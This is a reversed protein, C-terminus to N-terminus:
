AACQRPLREYKDRFRASSWLWDRAAKALHAMVPNHETYRVARKLHTEDRILTDFYDEQWFAGGSGTLRNAERSSRGKWGNILRVLPVNQIEVVLHVHNPM